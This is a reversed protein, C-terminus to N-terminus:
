PHFCNSESLFWGVTLELVKGDKLYTSLQWMCFYVFYSGLLYGFLMSLIIQSRIQLCITLDWKLNYAWIKTTITSIQYLNSYFLVTTYFLDGQQNCEHAHNISWVTYLSINPSSHLLVVPIINTTTIIINKLM